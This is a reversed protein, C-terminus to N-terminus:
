RADARMTPLLSTAGGTELQQIEHSDYGKEGDSSISTYDAPELGTGLLASHQQQPAGVSGLHARQMSSHALSNYQFIVRHCMGHINSINSSTKNESREARFAHYGKASDRDGTIDREDGVTAEAFQPRDQGQVSGQQRHVYITEPLCNQKLLRAVGHSAPDHAM